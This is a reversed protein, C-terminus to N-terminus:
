LKIRGLEHEIKKVYEAKERVVADIDDANAGREQMSELVHDYAKARAINNILDKTMEYAKPKPASSYMANEGVDTNVKRTMTLLKGVDKTESKYEHKFSSDSGVSPRPDNNYGVDKYAEAIQDRTLGLESLGEQSLSTSKFFNFHVDDVKGDEGREFILRGYNTIIKKLHGDNDYRPKFNESGLYSSPPAEHLRTPAPTVDTLPVVDPATADIPPLAPAKDAFVLKSGDMARKIVANDTDLYDIGKELEQDILQRIMTAEGSAANGQSTLVRLAKEYIFIKTASEKIAGELGEIGNMANQEWGTALLEAAAAKASPTMTALQNDIDMIPTGLKYSFTVEGLGPVDITGVQAAEENLTITALENEIEARLDNLESSGNEAIQDISYILNQRLSIAEASDGAGTNELANLTNQYVEVRNSAEKVVEINEEIRERIIQALPKQDLLMENVQILEAASLGMKDINAETVFNGDASYEFDIHAKGLVLEEVGAAGPVPATEIARETASGITSGHEYTLDLADAEAFTMVENSDVNVLELGGAATARVAIRGIAETALRTDGDPRIAGADRAVQTAKDLAWQNLDTPAGEFGFAEPNAMFQNKLLATISNHAVDRGVIMEQTVPLSERAAEQATEIATASVGAPELGEPPVTPTEGSLEAAGDVEHDLGALFGTTQAGRERMREATAQADVSVKNGRFISTLSNYLGQYHDSINESMFAGLSESEDAKHLLHDIAEKARDSPELKGDVLGFDGFALSTVGVGRMITGLAKLRTMTKGLGEKGGGKLDAYTESMGKMVMDHFYGQKNEQGERTKMVKKHREYTAVASYGLVRMTGLGTAIMASNLGEKVVQTVKIRTQVFETLAEMIKKNREKEYEELEKEYEEIITELKEILATKESEKLFESKMVRETMARNKMILRETEDPYSAEADAELIAQQIEDREKKTYFKQFGYQMADPVIKTGTVTMAIGIGMGGFTKAVDTKTTEYDEREEVQLEGTFRRRFRESAVKDILRKGGRHLSNLWGREKTPETVETSLHDIAEQLDEKRASIFNERLSEKESEAVKKWDLLANELQEILPEIDEQALRRVNQASALEFHALGLASELQGLVIGLNDRRHKASELRRAEVLDRIFTQFEYKVNDAYERKAHDTKADTHSTRWDDLAETFFNTMLSASTSLHELDEATVFFHSSVGLESALVAATSTITEADSPSDTDATDPKAEQNSFEPEAASQEKAAADEPNTSDEVSPEAEGTPRKEESIGDKLFKKAEPTLFVPPEIPVIRETPAEVTQTEEIPEISVTLAESTAKEENELARLLIQKIKSKTRGAPIRKEKDADLEARVAELQTKAGELDVDLLGELRDFIGESNKFVVGRAILDAKLKQVDAWLDPQREKEGVFTPMEDPTPTEQSM